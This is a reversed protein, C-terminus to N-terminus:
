HLLIYNDHTFYWYLVTLILWMTVIFTVHDTPTFYFSFATSWQPIHWVGIVVSYFLHHQFLLLFIHKLSLLLSLLHKICQHSMLNEIIQLQVREGKEEAMIDMIPINLCTRTHTTETNWGDMIPINLWARTHTTETNWGDMIPINLCARTHTPSNARVQWAWRGRSSWSWGPSSGTIGKLGTCTSGSIGVSHLTPGVNVHITYAYFTISIMYFSLQYENEPLVLIVM